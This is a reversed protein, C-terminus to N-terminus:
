KLQGRHKVQFEEAGWPILRGKESFVQEADKSWYRVAMPESVTAPVDPLFQNAGEEMVRALRFAAEHAREEDCELIFQDHIYNVIRCGFLPSSEDLYCEKAILFGAAKTADAGLGQFYSNCAQTYTAAGRLRKSFLQEVNVLGTEPDEQSHRDVMRFYQRMEPFTRLWDAKLEKADDESMVVDAAKAFYTLTRYGLGGPFGFNAIKGFQRAKKVDERKKNREAEEYPIKLIQAAVELHPDNGENLVEALRSKGILSLCVQALTRLELGDYDADLFVKGPRPVFCERIGPLRRINQINPDSSSTRGTAVFSRFRRHIPTKVGRMLAKIDKNLVNKLSTYEAYQILLPDGSERCAEEDLSIGGKDTKKCKKEGGMVKVMRATAAKTNRSGAKTGKVSGDHILKGDLLDAVVKGLEAHVIDQLLEVRRPDTKIGWVHMLHIWWAARAQRYQDALPEPDRIHLNRLSLYANEVKKALAEQWEFVTKTAQADQLPYQIQGPNWKELPVDRLAGYHLRYIDKELRKKTARQYCADLSYHHRVYVEQVRSGKKVEKHYGGFKGISNDLLFQRLMTDTVRDEEYLEFIYPLLEPIEAVLVAFDYAVNHGVFVGGSEYRELFWDKAGDYLVLGEGSTDQYSVCTLPPAKKGPGILATETDWFIV